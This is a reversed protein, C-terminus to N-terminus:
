IGARVQMIGSQKGRDVLRGREQIYLAPRLDGRAGQM